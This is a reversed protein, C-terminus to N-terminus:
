DDCRTPWNQPAFADRNKGDKAGYKLWLGAVNQCVAVCQITPHWHPNGANKQNPYAIEGM